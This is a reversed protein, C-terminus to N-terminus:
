AANNRRGRRNKKKWVEDREEGCEPWERESVHRHLEEV